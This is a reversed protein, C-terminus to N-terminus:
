QKVGKFANRNAAKFPAPAGGVGAVGQYKQMQEQRAVSRSMRVPNAAFIDIGDNGAMTRTGGEPAAEVVYHGAKNPPPNGSASKSDPVGTSNQMAQLYDSHTKKIRDVAVGTAGSSPKWKMEENIIATRAIEPHANIFDNDVAQKIQKAMGAAQKEGFVDTLQAQYDKKYFSELPTEGTQPNAPARKISDPLMEFLMGSRQDKNIAYLGGSSALSNAMQLKTTAEEENLRRGLGVMAGERVLSTEFAQMAKKALSVGPDGYVALNSLASAGSMNGMITYEGESLAAMGPQKASMLLTGYLQKLMQKEPADDSMKSIKQAVQTFDEDTPEPPADTGLAGKFLKQKLSAFSTTRTGLESTKKFMADQEKKVEPDYQNYVADKKTTAAIKQTVTKLRLDSEQAVAKVMENQEKTKEFALRDQGLKTQATSNAIQATVHDENLKATRVKQARDEETQSLTKQAQIYAAQATVGQKQIDEPIEIHGALAARPVMSFDTTSEEKMGGLGFSIETKKNTGIGALKQNASVLSQSQAMKEAEAQDFIKKRQGFEETSQADRTKQRELEANKQMVNAFMNVAGITSDFMQQNQQAKDQKNQRIQQAMQQGFQMRQQTLQGFGKEVINGQDAIEQLGAKFNIPM